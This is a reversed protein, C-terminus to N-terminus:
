TLRRIHLPVASVLTTGKFHRPVRPNSLPACQVIAPRTATLENFQCCFLLQRVHIRVLQRFQCSRGGESVRSAPYRAGYTRPAREAEGGTPPLSLSVPQGARIRSPPLGTPRSWLAPYAQLVDVWPTRQVPLEVRGRRWWVRVISSLGNLPWWNGTCRRWREWSQRCTM